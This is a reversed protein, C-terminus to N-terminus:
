NLNERVDPSFGFIVCEESIDKLMITDLIAIACRCRKTNTKTSSVQLFQLRPRNILCAEIQQYNVSDHDTSVQSRIASVRGNYSRLSWKCLFVSFGLLFLPLLWLPLSPLPPLPRFLLNRNGGKSGGQQQM